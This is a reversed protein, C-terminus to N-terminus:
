FAERLITEADDAESILTVGGRRRRGDFAGLCPGKNKPRTEQRRKWSQVEHSSIHPEDKRNRESRKRKASRMKWRNGM